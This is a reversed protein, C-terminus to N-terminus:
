RALEYRKGPLQRVLRKIEMGLLTTLLIQVPESTEEAITDVSMESAQLLDVVRQEIGSLEPGTGRGGSREDATSPDGAAASMAFDFDPQFSFEEVIDDLSEVLKAGQKIM